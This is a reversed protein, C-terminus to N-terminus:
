HELLHPKSTLTDFSGGLCRTTDSVTVFVAAPTASLVELSPPRIELKVAQPRVETPPATPPM